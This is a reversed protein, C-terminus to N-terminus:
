SAIPGDCEHNMVLHSYMDSFIDTATRCNCYNLNLYLNFWAAFYVDDEVNVMDNNNWNRKKSKAKMPIKM